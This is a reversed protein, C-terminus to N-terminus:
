TNETYCSNNMNFSKHTKRSYTFYTVSPLSHSYVPKKQYTNEWIDKSEIWTRSFNAWLFGKHKSLKHLTWSLGHTFMPVNNEAPSTFNQTHLALSAASVHELANKNAVM